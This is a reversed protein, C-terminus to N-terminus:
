GGPESAHKEQSRGRYERPTLGTERLFQRNFNSLNNYGCETAIRTIPKDTTDLLQRARVLRLRRLTDRLTQGTSRTFYRSLSSPSMGVRRAIDDLRVQVGINVYIERLVIEVIDSAQAHPVTSVGPTALPRAAALGEALLRLIRLLAEVRGIGHSTGMELLVETAKRAQPGHFELGRSAAKLLPNLEALEPMIQQWERMMEPHFQLVVDREAITSGPPVDSIWHHPLNSGILVLQGPEYPGINDGVIYSGSGHQLLHLEFEPHYNWRAVPHPWGHATWRFSAGSGLSIIERHAERGLVDRAAGLTGQGSRSM